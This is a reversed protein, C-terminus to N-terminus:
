QTFGTAGDSASSRHLAAAARRPLERYTVFHSDAGAGQRCRGPRGPAMQRLIFLGARMYAQFQKRAIAHANYPGTAAQDSSM